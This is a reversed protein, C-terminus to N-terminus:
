KRDNLGVDQEIYTPQTTLRIRDSKSGPMVVPERQPPSVLGAPSKSGPLTLRSVPMTMFPSKSKSGPLLSQGSNVAQSDGTTQATAPQARSVAGDTDADPLSVRGSKSSPMLVGSAYVVYVAALLASSM